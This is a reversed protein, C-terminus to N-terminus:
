LSIDVWVMGIGMAASVEDGEAAGESGGANVGARFGVVNRAVRGPMARRKPMPRRPLSRSCIDEGDEVERVDLVDQPGDDEAEDDRVGEADSRDEAGADGGILEPEFEADDEDAGAEQQLVDEM